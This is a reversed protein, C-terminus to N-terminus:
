GKSTNGGKGFERVDQNMKTVDLFKRHIQEPSVINFCSRFPQGLPGISLLHLSKKFIAIAIFEVM